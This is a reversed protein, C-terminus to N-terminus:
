TGCVRKVCNEKCRPKRNVCRRRCRRHCGEISVDTASTAQRATLYSLAGLTLGGLGRVVKRRPVDAGLQKTWGDFRTEM